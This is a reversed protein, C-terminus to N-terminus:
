YRPRLRGLLVIAGDGPALHIDDLAFLDSMRPLVDGFMECLRRHHTRVGHMTGADMWDQIARQLRKGNAGTHLPRAVFPPREATSYTNEYWAQYILNCCAEFLDKGLLSVATKYDMTRIFLPAPGAGTPSDAAADGDSSGRSDNANQLRVPCTPRCGASVARRVWFDNSSARVIPRLGSAIWETLAAVDFRKAKAYAKEADREHVIDDISYAHRTVVNPDDWVWWAYGLMVKTKLVRVIDAMCYAETEDALTQLMRSDVMHGWPLAVRVFTCDRSDALRLTKLFARTSRVDVWAVTQAITEILEGPLLGFYTPGLAHGVLSADARDGVDDDSGNLTTSPHSTERADM